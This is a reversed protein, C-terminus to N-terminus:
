SVGLMSLVSLTRAEDMLPCESLGRAMAEAAAEIEPTFDSAFPVELEEVGGATVVRASRAKWYAPVEVRGETGWLVCGGKDPVDRMWSASLRAVLGDAFEVLSQVDADCPYGLDRRVVSASAVPADAVLSALAAPYVGIDLACGGAEGLVWAGEGQGTAAMSYCYDADVQTLTGIRGARVLDRVALLLPSFCTKAAEMLLVGRERALSFLERVEAQSPALPKECVVAKGALLARRAMPVHQANPTCLYVADVAPDAMVEDFSGYAAPAGLERARARAKEAERSQLGHLAMGRALLCGEAVRGSIYGLGCVVLNKKDM